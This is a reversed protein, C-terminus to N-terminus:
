EKKESRRRMAIVIGFIIVGVVFAVLEAIAYAVVVDPAVARCIIMGAILILFSIVITLLFAGLMGITNTPNVSRIRNAAVRFPIISVAGVLIGVIVAVAM